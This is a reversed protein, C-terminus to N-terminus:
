LFFHFTKSLAKLDWLKISVLLCFLNTCFYTKNENVYFSIYMYQISRLSNHVNTNEKICTCIYIYIYISDRMSVCKGTLNCSLRPSAGSTREDLTSRAQAQTQRSNLEQRTNGANWDQKATLDNLKSVPFGNALSLLADWLTM